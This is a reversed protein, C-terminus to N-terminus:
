KNEGGEVPHLECDCYAHYSPIDNLTFNKTDIEREHEEGDQSGDFNVTVKEIDMSACAKVYGYWYAKTTIHDSLFRLRYELTDFTNAIEEASKGKIQSKIDKFLNTATYDVIQKMVGANIKEISSPYMQKCDRYAKNVGDQIYMDICKELDSKISDKAVPLIIDASEPHKLIDNRVVGYKKYVSQFFIRYNEENKNIKKNKPIFDEKFSSNEKIKASTSGHQNAPVNNNKVAGNPKTSKTKGNGGPKAATSSSTSTGGGAAGSNKAQIEAIATNKEVLNFYLREEDVNDSRLGLNLRMEEFPVCSSQWKLMEHNEMKVKTDLNIENFDFTVIDQENNIPDYGGELLLEVFLQDRIFTSIIRQTYKVTDHLQGEMSDADQKAGGRGMMAESVNLGAFVRKEYYNLYDSCDLAQGEAGVPKISTRENTIIVGDMPMHNVADRAETMEKETAMLGPETLGVMWQYIPLAFRYILSLVNGEIQRLIKVDELVAVVRPTGFAAAAEKEMYFHIVDLSAFKKTVSGVTQQYNQIEGNTNRKIQVTAPDMRFYGGVAKNNYVGKAQLGGMVKDVRSKVLFANSYKTLDEAVEQLLIDVPKQTSFSMLRLRARIYESAADNSSNITYGAKFILQSHKQLAIKIYSDSESASKIDSLDYDPSEFDGTSGGGGTVAKIFFQKLNNMSIKSGGGTGSGSAEKVGKKKKRTKYAEYITDVIKEFLM